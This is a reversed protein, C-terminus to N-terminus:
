LFNAFFFFRLANDQVKLDRHYVGRNHCYDVADILQHFIRRAESERLKKAYSQSYVSNFLILFTLM